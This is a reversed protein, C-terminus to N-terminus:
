FAQLRGQLVHTVLDSHRGLWRDYLAMFTINPALVTPAATLQPLYAWADASTKFGGKRVMIRQRTGDERLKWGM